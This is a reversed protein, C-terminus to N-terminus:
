AQKDTREVRVRVNGLPLRTMTIEQFTQKELWDSAPQLRVHVSKAPVRAIQLAADIPM